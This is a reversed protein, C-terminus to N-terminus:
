FCTPAVFVDRSGNGDSPTSILNNSDSNFAVLTGDDTIFPDNSFGNGEVNSSNVSVRITSPTCSTVGACTDRVFINSSNSSGSSACGLWVVSLSMVLRLEAARKM